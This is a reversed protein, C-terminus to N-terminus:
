FAPRLPDHGSRRLAKDIEVRQRAVQDIRKADRHRWRRRAPPLAHRRQMLEWLEASLAKRLESLERLKAPALRYATM